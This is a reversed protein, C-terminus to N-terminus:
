TSQFQQYRRTTAHWLHSGGAFLQLAYCYRFFNESTIAGQEVLQDFLLKAKREEDLIFDKLLTKAHVDTTGYIRELIPVDNVLTESAENLKESEYSFYDNTLVVVNGISIEYKRITELEADSLIIDLLWPLIIRGCTWGSNDHRFPLYEELSTFSPTLSEHKFWEALHVRLKESRKPDNQAISTFIQALAQKHQSTVAAFLSSADSSATASILSSAEECDSTSQLTKHADYVFAAELFTMWLFLREMDPSECWTVSYLDSGLPTDHQTRWQRKLGEHIPATDVLNNLKELIDKYFKSRRM